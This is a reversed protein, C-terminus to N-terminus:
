IVIYSINTLKDWGMWTHYMNQTRLNKHYSYLYLYYVVPAGLYGESLAGTAKHTSAIGLVTAKNFSGQHFPLSPNAQSGPDTIFFPKIWSTETEFNNVFLWEFLVFMYWVLLENNNNEGTRSGAMIASEDLHSIKLSSCLGYKFM